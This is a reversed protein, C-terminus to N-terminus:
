MTSLLHPWFKFLRQSFFGLGLRKYGFMPVFLRLDTAKLNGSCWWTLPRWGALDVCPDSFTQKRELDSKGARKMSTMGEFSFHCLHVEFVPPQVIGKFKILTGETWRAIHAKILLWALAVIEVHIRRHGRLKYMMIPKIHIRFVYNKTWTSVGGCIWLNPLHESLYPGSRNKFSFNFPLSSVTIGPFLETPTWRLQTLLSIEM